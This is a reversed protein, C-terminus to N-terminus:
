CSSRMVSAKWPRPTSVCTPLSLAGAIAGVVLTGIVLASLALNQQVVSQTRRALQLAYVLKEMTQARMFIMQQEM